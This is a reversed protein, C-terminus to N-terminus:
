IKTGFLYDSFFYVAGLNRNPRDHHKMHHRYMPGYFPLWEVWRHQAPTHMHRHCCSWLWMSGQIWVLWALATWPQWTWICFALWIPCTLGWAWMGSTWHLDTHPPELMGMGHHEVHHPYYYAQSGRRHMLYKHIWWEVISYAATFILVHLLIHLYM